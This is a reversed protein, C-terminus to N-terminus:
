SNKMSSMFECSHRGLMAHTVARVLDIPKQATSLEKGFTSFYTRFHYRRERIHADTFLRPKLRMEDSLLDENNDVKTHSFLTPVGFNGQLKSYVAADANVPKHGWSDKSVLTTPVDLTSLDACNTLLFKSHEIIYEEHVDIQSHLLNHPLDKPLDEPLPEM